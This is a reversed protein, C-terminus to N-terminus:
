QLVWGKGLVEKGTHVGQKKELSTKRSASSWAAWKKGLAVLGVKRLDFYPNQKVNM